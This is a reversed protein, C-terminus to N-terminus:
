RLRDNHEHLVQTLQKSRLGLPSYSDNRALQRPVVFTFSMASYATISATM